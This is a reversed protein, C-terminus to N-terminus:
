GGDFRAILSELCERADDLMDLATTWLRNATSYSCDHIDVWCGDTIQSDLFRRIDVILDKARQMANVM